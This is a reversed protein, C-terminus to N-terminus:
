DSEPLHIPTIIDNYIDIDAKLIDKLILGGWPKNYYILIKKVMKIRESYKKNLKRYLLLIYDVGEKKYSSLWLKKYTKKALNIQKKLINLNLIIKKFDIKVRMEEWQNSHADHYLKNIQDVIIFRDLLNIIQVSKFILERVIFVNKKIKKAISSFGILDKLLKDKYKKIANISGSLKKHYKLLFPDEWYIKFTDIKMNLINTLDESSKSFSNCFKVISKVEFNNKLDWLSAFLRKYTNNIDKIDKCNAFYLFGIMAEGLFNYNGMDGWTTMMFGEVNKYIRGAKFLYNCNNVSGSIHPFLRIWTSAGPCLYQVHKYKDILKIEEKAKKLLNDYISYNWNLIIVDKPISRIIQPFKIVMDGWFMIKKNYKQAIKRIMLLHNIFLKKDGGIKEALKRSKGKGLDWIEDMGVNIYEGPFAEAIERIMDDLLDYIEKNSVALSYYLSSESLYSYKKLKLIKPFHGLTQMSPIINIGSKDAYDVIEGIEDKSYYGTNKWILPHLRFQFVHEIYLSIFNISTGSVIDIVRKITKLKPLQGRSVDIMIGRPKEKNM